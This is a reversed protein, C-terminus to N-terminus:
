DKDFHFLQQLVDKSVFSSFNGTKEFVLCVATGWIISGIKLGTTISRIIADRKSIHANQVLEKEKLEIERKKLTLEEDEKEEDKKIRYLVDVASVAEKYGEDGPSLSRVNEISESIVENLMESNEEM